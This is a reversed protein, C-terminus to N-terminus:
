LELGVDCHLVLLSPGSVVICHHIAMMRLVSMKSAEDLNHLDM